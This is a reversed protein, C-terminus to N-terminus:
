QQAEPACLKIYRHYIYMNIRIVSHQKLNYAVGVHSFSQTHLSSLTFTM